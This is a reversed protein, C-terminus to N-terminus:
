QAVGAVTLAERWGAQATQRDESSVLPTFARRPRPLAELDEDSWIGIARGALHAAGLPSLDADTAAHVARGSIDAQLQM